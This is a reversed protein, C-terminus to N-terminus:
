SYWKGVKEFAEHVTREGICDLLAADAEMHGEEAGLSAANRLRELLVSINGKLAIRESETRENSVGGGGSAM